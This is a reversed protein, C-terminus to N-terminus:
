RGNMGPDGGDGLDPGAPAEVDGEEPLSYAGSANTYELICRKYKKLFDSNKSM